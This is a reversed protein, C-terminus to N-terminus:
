APAPLVALIESGGQVCKSANGTKLVEPTAFGQCTWGQITVPGGGGNGPERGALIAKAYGREITMATSCSVHGHEVEIKVPVNAATRTTGCATAASSPPRSAGAPPSSAGAAKAASSCSATALVVIMALAAQSARARSPASAHGALWRSHM